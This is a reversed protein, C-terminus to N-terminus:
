CERVVTLQSKEGCLGRRCHLIATASMGGTQTPSVLAPVALDNQLVVAGPRVSWSKLKIRAVGPLAGLGFVNWMISEMVRRSQHAQINVNGAEDVMM